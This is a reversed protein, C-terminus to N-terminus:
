LSGLVKLTFVRSKVTVGGYTVTAQVRVRGPAPADAVLLRAVVLGASGDGDVFAARDVVAGTTRLVRASATGGALNTPVGDADTFAFTIPLGDDGVHLEFAV